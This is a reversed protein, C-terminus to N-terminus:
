RKRFGQVLHTTVTDVRDDLTKAPREAKEDLGTMNAHLVVIGQMAVWCADAATAVDLEPNVAAAVAELVDELVQHAATAADAYGSDGANILDHRFMVECHAPHDVAINVYAKGIAALREVPDANASEAQRLATGLHQFAEIALSTLLGSTDGFHHAPAAHSVGARRAVERLSFSGLGKETIVDAAAARLANPLDGHHYQQATPTM